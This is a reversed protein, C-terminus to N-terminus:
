ISSVPETSSAMKQPIRQFFWFKCELAAVIPERPKEEWLADCGRAESYWVHKEVATATGRHEM